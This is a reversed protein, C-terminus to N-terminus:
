VIWYRGNALTLCQLCSSASILPMKTPFSVQKVFGFKVVLNREVDYEQKTYDVTPSM